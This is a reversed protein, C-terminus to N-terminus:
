ATVFLFLYVNCGCVRMADRQYIMTSHLLQKGQVAPLECINVQHDLLIMGCVVLGACGLAFLGVLARGRSAMVPAPISGYTSM